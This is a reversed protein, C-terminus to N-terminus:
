RNDSDYISLLKQRAKRQAATTYRIEKIGDGDGGGSVANMCLPEYACWQCTRTLNRIPFRTGKTWDTRRQKIDKASQIYDRLLINQQAVIAHKYRPFWKVLESSELLLRMDEYQNLNEGNELIAESYVDWTTDINKRRTLGGKSLREPVAPPTTRVYNWLVHNIEIGTILQLKRAYLLTQLDRLRYGQNPISTTTKHEWLYTAGTSRDRTVLDAYGTSNIGRQINALLEREVLVVEFQSADAEGHIFFYRTILRRATKAINAITAAEDYAGMQRSLAALSVIEPEWKAMVTTLADVHAQKPPIQAAIATYYLEFYEHILSGLELPAQAERKQLGEVYRYFYAQECSRFLNVQSLSVTLSQAM